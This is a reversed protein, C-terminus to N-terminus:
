CTHLTPLRGAFFAVPTVGMLRRFEAAMHSQDYYGSAVAVQAWGQRRRGGRALVERVRGIREFRKPPLGVGDEFLGRLHRESVALRRAIAPVPERRGTRGDLAEAAARVLEGRTVDGASRREIREALATGLRALVRRPDRGAERLADTLAATSGDWLEELGSVRDVLESVPVGLLPRAAGPCLRLRLCFPLDKGVHYSARTRPGIVLLDGRGAPTTRFILSTGADPLHVLPQGPGRGDAALVTVESVLGSLREPVTVEASM